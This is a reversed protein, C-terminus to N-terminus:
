IDSTPYNKIMLDLDPLPKENWEEASKLLQLIKSRYEPYLHKYLDELTPGGETIPRSLDYENRLYKYILKRQLGRLEKHEKKNLEM